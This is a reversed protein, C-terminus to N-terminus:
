RANLALPSSHATGYLLVAGAIDGSQLSQLASSYEFSMLEGSPSPHDLGITHGIEHALVYFLRYSDASDGTTWRAEPNLCIIAQAITEVRAAVAPRPTVDSYAIGDAVAEAAIVLDATKGAPAPVFHVDSVDSWMKFASRLAGEFARAKVHSHALLTNIGDTKRCNEIGSASSSATAIAYTITAGSGMSPTGWKVVQGNLNLLRYDGGGLAPTAAAVAFFFTLFLRRTRTVDLDPVIL